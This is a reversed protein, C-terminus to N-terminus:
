HLSNPSSIPIHKARERVSSRFYFGLAREGLEQKPVGITPLEFNEEIRAWRERKMWAHHVFDM